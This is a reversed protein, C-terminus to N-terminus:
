RGATPACSRSTLAVEGVPGVRVTRRLDVCVLDAGVSESSSAGPALRELTAGVSGRDGRASQRAVVAAADALRVSQSTVGLSAVVFAVVLVVAPMTMAFEVTASGKEDHAGRGLRSLRRRVEVAQEATM